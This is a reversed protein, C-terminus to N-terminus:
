KGRPQVKMQTEFMRNYCNSNWPGNGKLKVKRRADRKYTESMSWHSKHQVPLLYATM